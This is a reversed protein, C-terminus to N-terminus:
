SNGARMSRCPILLFKAAATSKIFLLGNEVTSDLGGFVVYVIDNYAAVQSEGSIDEGLKTINGFTSGRDSSKAFYLGDETSEGVV